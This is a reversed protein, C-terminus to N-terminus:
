VRERCSARGIEYTHSDGRDVDRYALGIARVLWGNGVRLSRREREKTERDM